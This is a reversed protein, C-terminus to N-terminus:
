RVYTCVVSYSTECLSSDNSGFNDYIIDLMELALEATCDSGVDAFTEEMNLYELISQLRQLLFNFKSHTSLYTAANNDITEIVTILDACIVHAEALLEINCAEITATAFAGNNDYVTVQLDYTGIAPLAVDVCM